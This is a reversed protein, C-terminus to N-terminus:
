ATQRDETVIQTAKTRSVGAGEAEMEMAKLYEEATVQKNGVFYKFDNIRYRAM